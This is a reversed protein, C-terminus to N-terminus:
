LGIERIRQRDGDFTCEIVKGALSKTCKLVRIDIRNKDPRTAGLVLQASAEISGSDKADHLSIDKREKDRHIQSSIIITTLTAKAMTKMGEAITSMREYRKGAGGSMLGIYDVIVLAPRKGIYLEAKNIVDEMTELTVKSLPCVYINEWKDVNYEKGGRVSSDIDRGSVQHDMSIFRECMDEPMLELEFILVPKPRQSYAINSIITTKGVGTDSMVVALDGPLLPRISHRFSPLWASLDIGDSEPTRVRKVYLSYMDSSSLIPVDIGRALRRTEQKIALITTSGIEDGQALLVDAVDNYPAPVRLIRLSAVKGKLSSLVADLWKGGPADNDPWINVHKNELYCSYADIWANSGGANTTADFGISELAKVCKEGECLDVEDKDAWSELRYLVRKVDKVTNVREGTETKTYQSFYKDMGTEVRDVCMVLKGSNDRYEYTDAVHKKGQFDDAVNGMEALEKIAQKVSINKLRMHLDIVSGGIGCTWCRWDQKDLRISMSPKHDDHFPCCCTPKGSNDSIHIGAKRLYVDIPNASKISPIPYSM